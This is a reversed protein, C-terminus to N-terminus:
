LFSVLWSQSCPPCKVHTEGVSVDLCRELGVEGRLSRETGGIRCYSDKEPIGAPM